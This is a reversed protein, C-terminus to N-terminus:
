KTEIKQWCYDPFRDREGEQMRSKVLATPEHVKLRLQCSCIDCEFLRKEGKVRLGVSNKVELYRRFALAVVKTLNSNAKNHPCNNLCIDARAQSQEPSAAHSGGGLWCALVESGHAITAAKEAFSM